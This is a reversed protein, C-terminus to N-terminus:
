DGCLFTALRTLTSGNFSVEVDVLNWLFFQIYELNPTILNRCSSQNPQQSMDICSGNIIISVISPHYHFARFHLVTILQIRGLAPNSGSVRSGLDPTCHLLHQFRIWGPDANEGYSWFTRKSM